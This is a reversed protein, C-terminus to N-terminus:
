ESLRQPEIFLNTDPTRNSRLCSSTGIHSYATSASGGCNLSTSKIQPAQPAQKTQHSQTSPSWAVSGCNSKESAPYVAQQPRPRHFVIVHISIDRRYKYELYARGELKNPSLPEKQGVLKGAPKTKTRRHM